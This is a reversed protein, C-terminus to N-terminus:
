SSHINWIPLPVRSSVTKKYFHELLAHHISLDFSLRYKGQTYVRIHFLDKPFYNTLEIWDEITSIEKAKTPFIPIGEKAFLDAIAVDDINSWLADSLHLLEQKHSLILEILDPSFLIGAGCAWGALHDLCGLGHHIGCYFNKKPAKKLFTLLRPFLIFSSLNTRLVYDFTSLTPLMAELSFITKDLIGPIRSEKGKSWITDGEILFDTPLNPRSRIFYCTFHEKDLHMYAKWVRQLEPYLPTDDSCIILVLTKLEKDQASLVSLFSFFLLLFLHKM